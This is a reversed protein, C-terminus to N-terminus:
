FEFTSGVNNNVSPLQNSRRDTATTRQLSIVGISNYLGLMIKLERRFISNSTLHIFFSSSYHLFYITSIITLADYATTLSPIYNALFILFAVPFKLVIFSFNFFISSFAFKIDRNTRNPDKQGERNINRTSNRIMRISIISTTLMIIFPLVSGEIMFMTSIFAGFSLTSTDCLLYPFGFFDITVLKLYIAIGIYLLLNSLVIIFIVTYQFSRKRLVNTGIRMMNLVKDISFAILIWGPISGFAMGIYFYAKCAFDSFQPYFLGYCLLYITSVLESITFCDFVALARFYTSISNKRFVPRSFVLFSIVNGILGISISSCRIILMIRSTLSFEM